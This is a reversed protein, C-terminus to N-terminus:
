NDRWNLYLIPNVSRSEKATRNRNPASLCRKVGQPNIQKNLINWKGIKWKNGIYNYLTRMWWGLEHDEVSDSVSTKFIQKLLSCVYIYHFIKGFFILRRPTGNSSPAFCSFLCIYNFTALATHTIKLVSDHWICPPYIATLSTKVPLKFRWGIFCIPHISQGLIFSFIWIFLYLYFQTHTHTHTHPQFM